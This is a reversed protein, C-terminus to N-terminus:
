LGWASRRDGGARREATVGSCAVASRYTRSGLVRACFALTRAPVRSAGAVKKKGSLWRVVRTAGLGPDGAGTVAKHDGADRRAVAARNGGLSRPSGKAVGSGTTGGDCGGLRKADLAEDADKCGGKVGVVSSGVLTVVAASFLASARLGVGSVLTSFQM